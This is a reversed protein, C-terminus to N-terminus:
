HRGWGPRHRCEVERKGHGNDAVTLKWDPGSKEFAVRVLAGKRAPPFAYKVANIILETVILGLSVAHSTPLTGDDAAVAIRINQKPSIM